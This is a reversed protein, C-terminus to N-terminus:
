AVGGAELLPNRYDELITREIEAPDTLDTVHFTTWVTDALIVLIRRTGPTTIGFHPAEIATWGADGRYVLLRGKSVVYPHETKHVKSTIVHGAPMFIERAYLGPTFHHRVPYEPLVEGVAQRKGGLAVMRAELVDIKQMPTLARATTALADM